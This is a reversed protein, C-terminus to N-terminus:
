SDIWSEGKEVVAFKDISCMGVPDLPRYLEPDERNRYEEAEKEPPHSFFDLEVRRPTNENTCQVRRYVIREVQWTEQYKGCRNRPANLIMVGADFGFGCITLSSM